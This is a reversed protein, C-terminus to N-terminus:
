ASGLVLDWLETVASREQRVSEPDVRAYTEGNLRLQHQTRRYGRYAGRVREALEAPILGLEGATKLLALNGINGTLEPYAHCHGLVLYQVIFEVDIIGGRDHKLDFLSSRNPHAELMKARMEVVQRGLEGLDREERLLEVRLREFEEGVRSDGAVFRARTLAQHEWAWAHRHQYARFASVPSVLLGSAGDPRLRLDTDYLVGAATYSTLWNNIRM